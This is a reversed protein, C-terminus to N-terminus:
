KLFATCCAASIWQQKALYLSTPKNEISTVLEMLVYNAGLLLGNLACVVLLIGGFENIVRTNTGGLSVEFLLQSLLYSFVPMMLGSLPKSPITPLMQLSTRFFSSPRSQRAPKEVDEPSAVKLDVMNRDQSM